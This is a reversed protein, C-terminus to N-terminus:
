LAVVIKGMQTDGEMYAYAERFQEFRFVRDVRPALAGDRLGKTVTRLGRDRQARDEVHNFMSFPHLVANKRVMEVIPAETREGSLLGYVFIVADRALADVYGVTFAGGVPDFSLRVGEGRTIEVIRDRTNQEETVIVHDAGADLLAAKKRQTRTTAIATAGFMKTLQLAGLGASSSAAPILVNDAPTMRGVEVLAFYATLYQMWISCAQDAPLGEPWPALYAEPVVAHQGQVGHLNSHFPISSVRDGVAFRSAGPGVADVVGCAESGVRSPLRPLTYHQGRMYLLDARNLAFAEVKFRVEGAGPEPLALDDLHLHEPGGIRHVRVTKSTPM